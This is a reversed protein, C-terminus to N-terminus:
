RAGGSAHYKGDVEKAICFIQVMGLIPMGHMAIRHQVNKLGLLFESLIGYLLVRGRIEFFHKNQM